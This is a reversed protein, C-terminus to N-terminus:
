CAHALGDLTRLLEGPDFPKRIVMDAGVEAAVQLYDRKARQGGGSMALIKLGPWKDRFAVITELGDAGPMFIDTILLDAPRDHNILLAQRADTASLTEHGAGELVLTLSELVDANDDVVLIKM